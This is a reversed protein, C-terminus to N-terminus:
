KTGTKIFNLDLGLKKFNDEIKFGRYSVRPQANIFLTINVTQSDTLNSDNPPMNDQISTAGNPLKAYKWRSYLKIQGMFSSFYWSRSWRQWSM